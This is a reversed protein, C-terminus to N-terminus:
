KSFKKQLRDKLAYDYLPDNVKKIGSEKIDIKIYIHPGIKMILLLIIIKLTLLYFQQELKKNSLDLNSIWIFSTFKNFSFDTYNFFFDHAFKNRLKNLLVIDSYDCMNILELGHAIDLKKSFGLEILKKSNKFNNKILENLINEILLHSEIVLERPHKEKFLERLGYSILNNKFQQMNMIQEIGKELNKLKDITLNKTVAKKYSEIIRKTGQDDLEM